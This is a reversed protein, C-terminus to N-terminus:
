DDGARMIADVRRSDIDTNLGSLELTGALRLMDGMPTVGVRAESLMMPMSPVSDADEFSVSYAKAPQVPLNVRLGRVVHPSWSGAALVVLEPHVDGRSTRLSQIVGGSAEFGLVETEARVVGGRDEVRAALGNVFEDPKLHADGEYLVAGAVDPRIAPEIGLLEDTDLQRSSIGYEDLM